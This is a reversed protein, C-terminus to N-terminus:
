VKQTLPSYAAALGYGPQPLTFSATSITESAVDFVYVSDAYQEAPNYYWGGLIVIKNLHDLYIATANNRGAPLTAALTRVAGTEPSIAYISDFSNTTALQDSGGFVYVTDNSTAYAATAYGRPAPLNGLNSSVGSGADISTIATGPIGNRYGGAVIARNLRPVYAAAAAYTNQPLTNFFRDTQAVL